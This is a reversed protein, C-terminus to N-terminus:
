NKIRFEIDNLISKPILWLDLKKCKLQIEPVEAHNTVLFKGSKNDLNSLIEIGDTENEGLNYDIFYATDAFRSSNDYWEYFDNSNIFHFIKFTFSELIHRWLNHINLDDDLIVVEQNIKLTIPNLFWQPTSAQPLILSVETGQNIKSILNIKGGINEIYQKASSLGLGKGSHKLSLGNMVDNIKNESIGIGTDLIKLILFENLTDLTILIECYTSLSEYANNLLNSIVRSLDNPSIYIWSTKAATSINMKFNITNIKWEVKKQNLILDILNAILILRPTNFEIQFKSSSTRSHSIDKQRYKSLLNNSIDRVSQIAQNLIVLNNNPIKDSLKDLTIDLVALPSQIDHAVIAALRGLAAQKEYEYIKNIQKRNDEINKSLYRLEILAQDSISITTETIVNKVLDDLPDSIRTSIIKHIKSKNFLAFALLIILTLPYLYITKSHSSRIMFKINLGDSDTILLNGLHDGQLLNYDKCSRCIKIRNNTIKIANIISENSFFLKLSGFCSGVNKNLKNTLYCLKLTLNHSSNTGFKFISGTQSNILHYGIVGNSKLQFLEDLFKPKIENRTQEGSTLFDMFINSSSIISFRDSLNSMFVNITNEIEKSEKFNRENISQYYIIFFLITTIISTISLISLISQTLHKKLTKIDYETNNLM